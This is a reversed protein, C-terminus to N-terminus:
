ICRAAQFLRTTAPQAVAIEATSPVAAASAMARLLTAQTRRVSRSNMDGSTSGASANPNAASIKM